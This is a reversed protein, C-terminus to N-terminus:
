IKPITLKIGSYLINPNKGIIASNESYVKVWKYGDGYARVAISWLTDGKKTTYSDMDIAMPTTPTMADLQAKKTDDEIVTLKKAEVKPLRIQMGPEILGNKPLKNEAIIDVYNYGSKYYREAIHWLDDGKVVIYVEDKTQEMEDNQTESTTSVGNESINGKWVNLKATKFYNIIMMGALFVVVIGLLTSLKDENMKFIKLINKFIKVNEQGKNM